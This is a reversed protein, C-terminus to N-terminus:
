NYCNRCEDFDDETPPEPASPAEWHHTLQRYVDPRMFVYYDTYPLVSAGFPNVVGDFDSAETPIAEYCNLKVKQGPRVEVKSFVVLICVHIADKDGLRTIIPYTM